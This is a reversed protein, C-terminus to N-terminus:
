NLSNGPATRPDPDAQAIINEVNVPLHVTFASGEGVRSQVSITGHLLEVFTRVIYLGLGAGSHNRTTTSDIQRFKDFVFPLLDDPIGCGTDTVKFELICEPNIIQASINVRGYDTFKIANNILNTLIQKLKM